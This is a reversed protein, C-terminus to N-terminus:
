IAKLPQKISRKKKKKLNVWKMKKHELAIDSCWKWETWPIISCSTQAETDNMDNYTARLMVKKQEAPPSLISNM